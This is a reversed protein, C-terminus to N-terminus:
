RRRFLGRREDAVVSSRRRGAMRLLTDVEERYVRGIAMRDLWELYELDKRAIEGLSWGSYRGFNLVTGSPDGPPPGAAGEGDAKRMRSPDYGGGQTSRGSTWDRSVTHPRIPGSDPGGGATAGDGPATRDDAAARHASAGPPQGTSRGRGARERDFSERRVPDGLLDMARNIELMRAAAEPGPSVDPHHKRALRRYVVAIIEADAEPDVQLVKYPDFDSATGRTM